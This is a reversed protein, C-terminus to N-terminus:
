EVKIKFYQGNCFLYLNGQICAIEYCILVQAPLLHCQYKQLVLEGERAFVLDYIDLVFICRNRSPKKYSFLALRSTGLWTISHLYSITKDLAMFATSSRPSAHQRYRTSTYRCFLSHQGWPQVISLSGPVSSAGRQETLESDLYVLTGEATLYYLQERSDVGIDTAPQDLSFIDWELTNLSLRLVKSDQLLVFLYGQFRNFIRSCKETNTKGLSHRFLADLDFLLTGRKYVRIKGGYVDTGILYEKHLHIDFFPNHDEILVLESNFDLSLLGV